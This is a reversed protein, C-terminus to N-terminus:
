HVSIGADILDNISIFIFYTLYCSFVVVPIVFLLFNWGSKGIDHFRRVTVALSPIIIAVAFISSLAGFSPVCDLVLVVLFSFLYFYWYESRRARGSFTAYKQFCAKIAEGFSM